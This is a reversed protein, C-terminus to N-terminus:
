ETLILGRRARVPKGLVWKQCPQFGKQELARGFANAKKPTHGNSTCWNEYSAYLLANTVENGISPEACEDLWQQVYDLDDRSKQTAVAVAKPTVLGKPSAYWRKAGEVAYALVSVLNEPSALSRKLAKDENGLRSIPFRIVRVRGWFADDDM